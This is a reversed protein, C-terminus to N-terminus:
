QSPTRTRFTLRPRPFVPEALQFPTGTVVYEHGAPLVAGLSDRMNWEVVELTAFASDGAAINQQQPGTDQLWEFIRRPETADDVTIDYRQTYDVETGIPATNRLVLHLRMTDGLDYALREAWLDSTLNNGETTSAQSDFTVYSVPAPAPEMDSNCGVFAAAAALALVILPGGAARCVLRRGLRRGSRM